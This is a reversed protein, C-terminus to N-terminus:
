PQQKTYLAYLLLAMAAACALGVFVAVKLARFQRRRFSDGPNPFLRNEIAM